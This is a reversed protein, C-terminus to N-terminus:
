LTFQLLSTYSRSVELMEWSWGYSTCPYWVMGYWVMGYWVMVHWLWEMVSRYSTKSKKQKKNKNKNEPLCPLFSVVPSITSKATPTGIATTRM